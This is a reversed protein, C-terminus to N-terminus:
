NRFPNDISWDNLIRHRNWHILVRPFYGMFNFVDRYLDVVSAWGENAKRRSMLAALDYVLYFLGGSNWVLAQASRQSTMGEEVMVFAIFVSSVILSLTFGGVFSFDRGCFAAYIGFCSIGALISWAPFHAATWSRTAFAFMAIVIPLAYTTLKPELDTGRLISRIGSVLFLVALLGVTIPVLAITKPVLLGIGVIISVSGIFCSLVRRIFRLRESYPEKTVSGPIQEPEPVYNPVYM